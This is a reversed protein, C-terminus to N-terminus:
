PLMGADVWADVQDIVSQPVPTRPAPPMNTTFSTVLQQAASAPSGAMFPYTTVDIPRGHHHCETCGSADLLPAITLQFGGPAPPQSPPLAGADSPGTAGGSRAGSTGSSSGAGGATAGSSTPPAGVTSGSQDGNGSSTGDGRPELTGGGSPMESCAAAAIAFLVAVATALM